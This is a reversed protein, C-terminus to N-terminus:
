TKDLYKTCIILNFTTPAAFSYKNSEKVARQRREEEGVRKNPHLSRIICNPTM